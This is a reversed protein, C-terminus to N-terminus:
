ELELFREWPIGLVKSIKKANSLSIGRQGLEIQTYYARSLGLLESVQKQTMDMEIRAVILWKQKYGLSKERLSELFRYVKMNVFTHHIIQVPIDVPYINSRIIRRRPKKVFKALLRIM